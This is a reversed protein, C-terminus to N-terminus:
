LSEIGMSRFNPVMSRFSLHGQATDREMPDCLDQVILVREINDM